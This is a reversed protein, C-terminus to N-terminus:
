QTKLNFNTVHWIVGNFLSAILKFQGKIFYKILDKPTAVLFYFLMGMILKAGKSNRRMFLLRNRTMYYVKQPSENGGTSMGEKHIICSNGLYYMSFGANKVQECWDHEEYYLFYATPWYGVEQIIKKPVILAAGHGLDTLKCYNYQGRDKEMLGIRKGRGTLQSIARAGAYQITVGDPFLVKPSAMGVDPHALLFEIMPELTNPFVLTDSNLFFLYEGSAKEIGLNNGGAFGVNRKSEVLIVSPFNHRMQERFLHDNANDVIIIELVPYTLKKISALLEFTDAPTNYYVIIISVLPKSAYQSKLINNENEDM